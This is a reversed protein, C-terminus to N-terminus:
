ALFRMAATVVADRAEAPLVHGSGPVVEVDVGPLYRRAASSLSRAAFVPDLEGVLVLVPHEVARLVPPPLVPPPPSTRAHRALLNTWEVLDPDPEGEGSIAQIVRRAGEEDKRLRWRGSRLLLRLPTRARVIGAPAALVMRRVRESREWAIRLATWGGSSHGFLDAQHIDLADLLVEAWTALDDSRPDPRTTLGMGPNGPSEVVLLRRERALSALRAALLVAPFGAGPIAVLPPADGGGSERAVSVGRDSRVPREVFPALRSEQWEEM